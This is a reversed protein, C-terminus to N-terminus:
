RVSESVFPVIAIKMKELVTGQHSSTEDVQYKLLKQLVFNLM